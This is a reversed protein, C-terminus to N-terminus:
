KLWISRSKLRWRAEEEDLLASRKLIDGLRLEEQSSLTSTPNEQFSEKIQSEMSSLTDRVQENQKM